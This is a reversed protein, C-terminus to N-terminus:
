ALILLKNTPPFQFKILLKLFFQEVYADHVLFSAFKIASIRIKISYDLELGSIAISIFIVDIFKIISFRPISIFSIPIAYDLRLGSITDIPIFIFLGSITDKPIFIYFGSITDILFFIASVWIFSFLYSIFGCM